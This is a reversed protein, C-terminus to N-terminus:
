DEEEGEEQMDRLSYPSWQDPATAFYEGPTEWEEEPGLPQPPPPRDWWMSNSLDPIARQGPEMDGGAYWEAEAAERYLARKRTMEPDYEARRRRPEAAAVVVQMPCIFFRVLM